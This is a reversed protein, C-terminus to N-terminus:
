SIHAVLYLAVAAAPAQGRLVLVNSPDSGYSNEGPNLWYLVALVLYGDDNILAEYRIKKWANVSEVYEPDEDAKINCGTLIIGILLLFLMFLRNSVCVKM